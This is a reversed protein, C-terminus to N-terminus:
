IIFILLLNVLSSASLNIDKFRQTNLRFKRDFVFTKHHEFTKKFMKDDPFVNNELIEIKRELTKVTKRADGIDTYLKKMDTVICKKNDKNLVGELSTGEFATAIMTKVQDNLVSASIHENIKERFREDEEKNLKQRVTQIVEEKIAKKDKADIKISNQAKIKTELYKVRLELTSKADEYTKHFRTFERHTLSEKLLKSFNFESERFIKIASEVKYDQDKGLNVIKNTLDQKLEVVSKSISESFNM